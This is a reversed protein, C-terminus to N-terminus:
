DLTLVALDGKGTTIVVAVLLFLLYCDSSSQFWTRCLGDGLWLFSDRYLCLVREEFILLFRPPPIEESVAQSHGPVGSFVTSGLLGM